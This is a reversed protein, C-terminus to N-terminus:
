EYKVYQYPRKEKELEELAKVYLEFIYIILEFEMFWLSNYFTSFGNIHKYKNLMSSFLNCTSKVDNMTMNHIQQCTIFIVRKVFTQFHPQYFFVDRNLNVNGINCLSAIEKDIQISSKNVHNNELLHRIVGMIIAHSDSEENILQIVINNINSIKCNIFSSIINRHIQNYSYRLQIYDQKTLADLFQRFM